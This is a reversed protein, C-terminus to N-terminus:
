EATKKGISQLLWTIIEHLYEAVLKERGYIDENIYLRYFANDKIKKIIFNIDEVKADHLQEPQELTIDEVEIEIKHKKKEVPLFNKLIDMQQFPSHIIHPSEDYGFISRLVDEIKKSKAFGIVKGNISVQYDKM